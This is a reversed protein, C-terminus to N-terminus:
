KEVLHKARKSSTLFGLAERYKAITRRAVKVSKEKEILDTIDQDSLVAGPKETKIYEAVWNKVTENALGQEDGVGARFFYKLEFVGRPCHVYKNTTARSVTSEHLGIADSVMRLTLPKLHEIGLEFFDQQKELVVEMVRVITRNREGIARLIWKADKVKETLFAKAVKSTKSNLLAVGKGGSPSEAIERIISEYKPSIRLRPLGDENISVIWKDDRQFVYVDPVIAVNADGGYQRAPRPDLNGRIFLFARKVDEPKEKLSRAIKQIDQKEFDTWCKELIERVLPPSNEMVNLQLLLCEKLSRAGVGTPECEQIVELAFELDDLSINHEKSLSRLSASIYGNDGMYQLLLQACQLEFSTLRMMSLQSEIDEHLDSQKVAFLEYGPQDRIADSEQGREEAFPLSESFRQVLDDIGRFDDGGEGDGVTQALQDFGDREHVFIDDGLPTVDVNESTADFEELTPNDRIEEAVLTELEQRSLLLIKIAQQIQPSLQVLQAQKLGQKLGQKMELAM